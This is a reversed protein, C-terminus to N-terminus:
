SWSQDRACKWAPRRESRWEPWAVDVWPLAPVDPRAERSQSWVLPPLVSHVRRWAELLVVAAWALLLGVVAPRASGSPGASTQLELVVQLAAEPQLRRVGRSVPLAVDAPEAESQLLLRVQPRPPAAPLAQRGWIRSVPPEWHALEAARRAAVCSRAASQGADPTCPVAPPGTKLPWGLPAEWAQEPVDSVRGVSRGAGADPRQEPAHV